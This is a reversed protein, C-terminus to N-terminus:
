HNDARDSDRCPLCGLQAQAPPPSIGLIAICGILLVAVTRQRNEMSLLMLGGFLSTFLLM